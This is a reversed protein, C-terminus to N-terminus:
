KFYNYFKKTALKMMDFDGKSNGFVLIEKYKELQIRERIRNAKEIGNCNKTSFKGTLKNDCIELETSILKFGMENCWPKLYNSISASVIYIEYQNDINKLYDMFSNKIISRIKIKEFEDCINQFKKLEMSKFNKQFFREKCEPLSRIRFLFSLTTEIWFILFKVLTCSFYTFLIFSDKTSITGDFDFIYIKKFNKNNNIKM